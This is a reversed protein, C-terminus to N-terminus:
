SHDYYQGHCMQDCTLLHWSNGVNSLSDPKCCCIKLRIVIKQWTETQWLYHLRILFLYRGTKGEIKCPIAGRNGIKLSDIRFPAGSSFSAAAWPSPSIMLSVLTSARLGETTWMVPGRIRIRPSLNECLTLVATRSVSAIRRDLALAINFGNRGWSWVVNRLARLSGWLVTRSFAPKARDWKIVM